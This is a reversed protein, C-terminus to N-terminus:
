SHMHAYTQPCFPGPNETGGAVCASARASSGNANVEKEERESLLLEAEFYNHNKADWLAEEVVDEAMPRSFRSPPSRVLPARSKSNHM